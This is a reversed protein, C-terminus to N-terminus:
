RVRGARGAPPPAPAPRRSAHRTPRYAAPARNGGGYARRRHLRDGADDLVVRPAVVLEDRPKSPTSGSPRGHASSHSPVWGLPGAVSASPRGSASTVPGSGYRSLTSAAASGSDSCACGARSCARAPSRRRGSGPGPASARAARRARGRELREAADPGDVRVSSRSSSSPASSSAVTRRRWPGPSASAASYRPRMAPRASRRRRPRAACAGLRRPHPAQGLAVGAVGADGGRQQQVEHPEGGALRDLEPRAVEM